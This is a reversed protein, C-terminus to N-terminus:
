TKWALEAPPDYQGTINSKIIAFRKRNRCGPEYRDLLRRLQAPPFLRSLHWSPRRSHEIIRSFLFRAFAEDGQGLRALITEATLTYDGWFCENAVTEASEVAAARYGDEGSRPTDNREPM